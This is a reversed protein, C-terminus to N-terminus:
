GKLETVHWLEGSPGWVYVVDGWSEQKIQSHKVEVTDINSIAAFAENIDKVILQFMLNNALDDNFFKQLFFTCQGKNCVYLDTGAPETSFGLAAYFIRSAEFDKSPVFPRLDLIEM